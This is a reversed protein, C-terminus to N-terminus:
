MNGVLVTLKEFIRVGKEGLECRTHPIPPCPATLPEGTFRDMPCKFCVFINQLIILGRSVHTCASRMLSSYKRHSKLLSPLHSSLHAKEQGREKEM